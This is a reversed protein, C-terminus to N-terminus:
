RTSEKTTFVFPIDKTVEFLSGPHHDIVMSVFQQLNLTGYAISASAASIKSHM